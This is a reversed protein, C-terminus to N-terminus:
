AILFCLWIKTEGVGECWQISNELFLIIGIKLPRYIFEFRITAFGITSFRRPDFLRPPSSSPPFAFLRLLFALRVLATNRTYLDHLSHRPM